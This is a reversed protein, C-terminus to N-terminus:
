KALVLPLEDWQTTYRLSMKGRKMSWVRSEQLGVVGPGLTGRGWKANVQDMAAMLAIRRGREVARGPAEFLGPQWGTSSVLGFVSVGAKVYEFGPRYIRQLGYRAARLLRLTDDTPETLPVALAGSYQPVESKFRNTMIFVQVVTALSAQRRLKVAARSVYLSVAEQLDGMRRVPAGFSRSSIIQQKAPVVEELQLCSTGRLERVTREMVVSFRRRLTEPDAQRLDWATRIGYRALSETHRRGVGWVEGVDIHRLLGELDAQTMAGLDCVGSRDHVAKKAVHNALKALTKSPGIGVCVVLGTHRLVEHRIKRGIAVPNPLGTLDLFSEDISYIEQGPAMNGLLTMVRNSMDAYLAYNSSMAVGGAREFTARIKFWPVGMPVGMAKAEASRAVVCGDNNSLVVVPKSALAPDFVKECSAYFNNVDVLAFTSM